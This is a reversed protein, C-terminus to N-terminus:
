GVVHRVSRLTRLRRSVRGRVGQVDVLPTPYPTRGAVPEDFLARILDDEALGGSYIELGFYGRAFVSGIRGEESRYLRSELGRAVRGIGYLAVRRRASYLDGRVSYSAVSNELEHPAVGVGSTHGSEEPERGGSVIGASERV